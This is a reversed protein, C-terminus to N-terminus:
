AAADSAPGMPDGPYKREWDHFCRHANDFDLNYMDRYGRDLLMAEAARL